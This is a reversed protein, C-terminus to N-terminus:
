FIQNSDKWVYNYSFLRKKSNCLKMDEGDSNESCEVNNVTSCPLSLNNDLPTINYKQKHKELLQAAEKSDKFSFYFNKLHM